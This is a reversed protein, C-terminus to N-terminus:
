LSATYIVGITNYEAVVYSGANFTGASYLTGGGNGITASAGSGFVLFCGQLTDTGLIPFSLYSSVSISGGSAASWSAAVRNATVTSETWGPHATMTDSTSTATFGTASILGVYPGSGGPAAGGNVGLYSTLALNKAIITVTNEAIDRWVEEGLRDYCVIEYRGRATAGEEHM